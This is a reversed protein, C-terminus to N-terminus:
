QTFNYDQTLEEGPAIDRLARMGICYNGDVEAVASACNPNSARPGPLLKNSPSSPCNSPISVFTAKTHGFILILIVMACIRSVAIHMKVLNKNMIM